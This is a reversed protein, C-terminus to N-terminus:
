GLAPAIIYIWAYETQIRDDDIWASVIAGFWVAFNLASGTIAGICIASIM